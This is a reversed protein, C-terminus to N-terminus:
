ELNVLGILGDIELELTVNGVSLYVPSVKAFCATIYICVYVYMYMCACMCVENAEPLYIPSNPGPKFILEIKTTKAFWM